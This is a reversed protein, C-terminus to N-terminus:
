KPKRNKSDKLTSKQWYNIEQIALSPRNEKTHEVFFQYTLYGRLKKFAVAYAKSVTSIGNDARVLMDSLEKSIRNLAEINKDDAFVSEVLGKVIEEDTPM